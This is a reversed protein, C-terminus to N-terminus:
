NEQKKLFIKFNDNGLTIVISSEIFSSSLSNYDTKPVQGFCLEDVTCNLIDSIKKLILVNKPTVGNIWGHVTSNPVELVKALKTLSLKEQKLYFSLNESFKMNKKVMIQM